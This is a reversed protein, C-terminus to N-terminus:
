WFVYVCKMSDICWIQKKYLCISDIQESCVNIQKRSTFNHYNEYTLIEFKSESDDICNKVIWIDMLEIEDELDYITDYVYDKNMHQVMLPPYQYDELVCVDLLHSFEYSKSYKLIDASSPRENPNDSWCLCMLDLMLTPYMSEHTKILPRGGHLVIDKIQEQGEFPHKLSILEYLLMGFSFCDVKETYTEEGNFRIIEPSIYGETGAFGKTGTPLVSRSISYDALKVYVNNMSSDVSFKNPKPFKWVLVNDSKLDRYIILNSHLYSLASSIQISTQQIVTFQLFCLNRKYDSLIEKLNGFPALELIIALPRMSLGIISVINEHKLSFLIAIEQRAISYAKAALRVPKRYSWSDNNDKESSMGVGLKDNASKNNNNEEGTSDVSELAKIAIKTRDYKNSQLLGSYVSGFSGRGLLKDIKLCNKPIKLHSEIDEFSLDPAINAALQLGHKPCNLNVGKLVSYCIDDTMFCFVWDINVFESFKLSMRNNFDDSQSGKQLPPPTDVIENKLRDDMLSVTDEFVTAIKFKEDINVFNWAANDLSPDSPLSVDESGISLKHMSDISPLRDNQKSLKAKLRQKAVQTCQFCPALRTVLYDGKSDQMFRTGLDPYWDELLSDIIEIVLAFLKVTVRRNCLIKILNKNMTSNEDIQNVQYDRFSAYLEVFSTTKSNKLKYENECDRYLIQNDLFLENQADSGGFVGGNSIQTLPDFLLEKVRLLTYDLYKLEIGTQWCKWEAEKCVYDLLPNLFDKLESHTLNSRDFCYEIKLSDFLCEKLIKDSLIRTILRSFFGTPIFSLCYLRRISSNSQGVNLGGASSSCLVPKCEYLLPLKKSPDAASTASSLNSFTSQSQPLLCSDGSKVSGEATSLADDSKCRKMNVDTNCSSNSISKKLYKRDNNSTSSSVISSSMSPSLCMERKVIGISIRQSNCFKLMSENPLLSPILLHKNDWTLALEFKGLLDVVFGTLDTPDLNSGKFLVLLDNILMFGKSAFPNVETNDGRDSTHRVAM